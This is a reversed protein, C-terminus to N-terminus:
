FLRSNRLSYLVDSPPRLMVAKWVEQLTMQEMWNSDVSSKVEGWSNKSSPILPHTVEKLSISFQHIRGSSSIMSRHMLCYPYLPRKGAGQLVVCFLYDRCGTLLLLLLSPFSCVRRDSGNFAGDLWNQVDSVKRKHVALEELNTPGYKQAWPRKDEESAVALSSSRSQIRPESSPPMLFRKNSATTKRLRDSNTSPPRQRLKDADRNERSKTDSQVGTDGNMFHQTFLEDFSDYDDEILDDEDGAKETVTEPVFRQSSWRQEESAPKFFGHLSGTAASNHNSPEGHKKKEPSPSRSSTKAPPQSSERSVPLTKPRSSLLPLTKLNSGSQGDDNRPSKAVSTQNKSKTDDIKVPTEIEDDTDSSYVTFRRQRKSPRSTDMIALQKQLSSYDENYFLSIRLASCTLLCWAVTFFFNQNELVM